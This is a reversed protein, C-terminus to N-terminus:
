RKKRGGSRSGGEDNSGGHPRSNGPDCGESGNGIGQNCHRKKPKKGGRYEGYDESTTILTGQSVGVTQSQVLLQTVEYTTVSTSSVEMIQVVQGPNSTLATSLSDNFAWFERNVVMLSGTQLSAPYACNSRPQPWGAVTFQQANFSQSTSFFSVRADLYNSVANVASVQTFYDYTQSSRDLVFDQDVDAGYVTRVVGSTAAGPALILSVVTHVSQMEFESYGIFRNKQDFLRVVVRDGSKLGKIFKAKDKKGKLKYRFDGIFREPLFGQAQKERMSVRAVVHSLSSQNQLVTLSFGTQESRRSTRVEERTGGTSTTSWTEQSAIQTTETTSIASYRQVQEFQVQQDRAAGRIDYRLTAVTKIEAQSWDIERGLKAQLEKVDIVESTLITQGAANTVLRAGVGTYCQVWQEQQRVYVTYVANAYSTAPKDALALQMVLQNSRLLRAVHLRGQWDSKRSKDKRSHESHDKALLPPPMVGGMVTTAALAMLVTTRAWRGYLGPQTAIRTM